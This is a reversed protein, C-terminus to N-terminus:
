VPLLTFLRGLLTHLPYGPPHDIGLFYSSMIFLGDDELAVTRPASYAYVSFLAVFVVVLHPWESKPSVPEVKPWNAFEAALRTLRSARPHERQTGPVSPHRRDEVGAGGSRRKSMTPFKPPVGRRPTHNM